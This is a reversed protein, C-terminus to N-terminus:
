RTVQTQITHIALADFAAIRKTEKTNSVEETLAEILEKKDTAIKKLRKLTQDAAATKEHLQSLWQRLHSKVANGEEDKLERVQEHLWALTPRDHLKAATEHLYYPGFEFTMEANPTLERKAIDAFDETFSGQVKHFMLCSPPAVHGEEVGEGAKANRKARGCLAEALEYGYYFPFSAKVFAIGVCATLRHQDEGEPFIGFQKLSEGMLAHTQTEFARLFAETYPLAIDARCIVTLDDGGLVIPRIPIMENDNWLHKVSQYAERAAAITAQDLQKSFRKFKERNRGMKSVVQGLGNGDAHIIALWSNQRTMDEMEFAIQKTHIGDEFAKQCLRETTRRRRKIESWKSEFLKQFTGADLHEKDEYAIAPLGTQRSREVGMWGMTLSRMARNRGTRLRSELTNVIDSFNTDSDTEEYAVVAQSVETGPAFRAVHRPWERVVAQCDEEHDFIYKINGAASLVANDEHYGGGVKDVMDKFENSCINEVLESAGVIHRLKGTQFIFRQIGQVAAGFLYKKM